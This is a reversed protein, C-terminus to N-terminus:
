IKDTSFHTPTTMSKFKSKNLTKHNLDKTQSLDIKSVEKLKDGLESRKNSSYGLYFHSKDFINQRM